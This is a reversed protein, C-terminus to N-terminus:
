PGPARGLPVGHGVHKFESGAWVAGGHCLHCQSAPWARQQMDWWALSQLATLHAASAAEERRRGVEWGAGRADLSKSCGLSASGATQLHAHSCGVCGQSDGPSDGYLWSTGRPGQLELACLCTMGPCLEVAGDWGHSNCSTLLGTAFVSVALWYSLKLM